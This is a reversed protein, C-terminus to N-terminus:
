KLEKIELIKFVKNEEVRVKVKVSEKTNLYKNLDDLTHNSTFDLSATGGDDQLVLGYPNFYVRVIKGIFTAESNIPLNDTTLNTTM